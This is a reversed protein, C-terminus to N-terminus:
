NKKERRALSEWTMIAVAVAFNVMVAVASLESKMAAVIAAIAAVLAAWALRRTLSIAGVAFGVAGVALFYPTTADVPEDRLWGITHVLVGSGALVLVFAAAQRSWRNTLLRRRFLAFSLALFLFFALDLALTSAFASMDVGSVHLIMLGAVIAIMAAGVLARAGGGVTPDREHAEARADDALRFSEELALRAAAIRADLEPAPPDLESAVAAAADPSKHHLEAEALALLTKRLLARAQTNGEWERLSQTLGFRAEALARAAEVSALTEASPAEGLTALRQAAHESLRTSARHRLFAALDERVALASPQRAAPDRRTARNAIEGLEAPIGVYAVPKSDLALMLANEVTEADHRPRGTLLAHLTAGLLYVDTRADIAEVSGELMEPAMYGPTGVLDFDNVSSVDRTKAIGWDLLYVEGFAGVMINDPKVDRHVVGKEHAFHLADAVRMLIELYAELRGGYRRELAPWAPHEHTALLSALSAGEIRKMVLLPAGSEDIGLAHVPVINPHELTGTTVAEALLAVGATRLSLEDAVALKKIAVARELSRQHALWVVGMGGKGLVHRLELDAGATGLDPPMAIDLRPLAHERIPPPASAGLLTAPRITAGVDLGLEDLRLTRLKDLEEGAM